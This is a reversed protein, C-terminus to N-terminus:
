PVVSRDQPSVKFSYNANHAGISGNVVQRAVDVVYDMHDEPMSIFDGRAHSRCKNYKMCTEESVLRLVQRNLSTPARNQIFRHHIGFQACLNLYSPKYYRFPFVELLVSGPKMFILASCQFGHTTLFIDTDHLAQRLLCPHMQESHYLTQINWQDGLRESLSHVM